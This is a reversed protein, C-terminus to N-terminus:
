LKIKHKERWTNIAKHNGSLLTDPVKLGKFEEPRTYQPFELFNDSYSEIKAASEKELINPLLRIVGEMVALAPIEGGSLVYDGISIIDTCFEEVRADVGEYRGCILTIQELKSFERVLKQTFKKGKPSLLVVRKSKLDKPKLAFKSKLNLPDVKAKKYIDRLANYLPEVMLLMGAGGGYTKDDVTGRKDIAYDRLNILNISVENKQLAKKFPLNKLHETFLNPFLTIVNFELM